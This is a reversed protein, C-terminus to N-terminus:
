TNVSIASMSTLGDDNWVLSIRRSRQCVGLFLQTSKEFINIYRVPCGTCKKSASVMTPSTIMLIALSPSSNISRVQAVCLRWAVSITIASLLFISARAPMMPPCDEAILSSVLCRTTSIAFKSGTTTLFVPVLSPRLVSASSRKSFFIM